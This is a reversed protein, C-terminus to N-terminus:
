ALEPAAFIYPPAATAQAQTASPSDRRQSRRLGKSRLYAWTKHLVNNHRPGKPRLYNRHGFSGRMSRM